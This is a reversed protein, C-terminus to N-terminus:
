AFSLGAEGAFQLQHFLIDVAEEREPADAKDADHVVGVGGILAVFLGPLDVAQDVLPVQLIHRFVDAANEGISPFVAKVDAGKGEIAILLVGLLFAMKDHVLLSGGNYPLHKDEEGLAITLRGNGSHQVVPADGVGGFVLTEVPQAVLLGLPFVASQPLIEGNGIHQFILNIDAVHHLPLVAAHGILRFLVLGTGFALPIAHLAGM